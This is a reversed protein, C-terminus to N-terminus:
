ATANISTIELTKTNTETITVLAITLAYLTWLLPYYATSLFTASTLYSIISVMISSAFVATNDDPDDKKRHSLRNLYKIASYIMLIYFILGLSGLEAIIQPLTGHFARGWQTVSEAPGRYYEPMRVGGNSAGVGTIPYDRFMRLAAKWYNIRSAATAEHTDTITEVEAWYKQPAFSIIVGTLLLMIFLSVFIKRSIIVCFLITAMLGVWGGRSLSSIVALTLIVLILLLLFRKIRTRADLFMFFAFPIMMNMALAFDNEDGLFAGGAKGGGIIGKIAFFVHIIFLLWILKNLRKLSDIVNISIFFIMFYIAMSQFTDYALRNNWATFITSAIVALFGIYSWNFKDWVLQKRTSILHIVWSLLTVVELIIALRLSSIVPFFYDIRSYDYLFFLCIGLYPNLLIGLVVLIVIPLLILLIQLKLEIFPFVAAILVTFVIFTIFYLLNRSIRVSRVSRALSRSDSNEIINDPM